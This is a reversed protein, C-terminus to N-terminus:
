KKHGVFCREDRAVGEDDVAALDEVRLENRGEVERDMFRAFSTCGMELGLLSGRLFRGSGGPDCIASQLNSTQFRCDDIRFESRARPNARQGRGSLSAGQGNDQSYLNSSTM